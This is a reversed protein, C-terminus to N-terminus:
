LPNKKIINYKRPYIPSIESQKKFVLLKRDYNEKLPLKYEIIDILNMNLVRMANEAILLENESDLSKYAVFYGGVKLFPAAYELIISLAGLARSTVVNFTSKLEAPLDEIRSAATKINDLLLEDKAENIFKIKKITSDVAFIKINDYLLALPISPFGGGTGIDMLKEPEQYKKVFLNFALSDYIHKEFLVNEDNKSILNTHSNYEKFIKIYKYFSKKKNDSFKIFLSNLADYNM